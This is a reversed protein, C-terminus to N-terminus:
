VAGAPLLAASYSQPTIALEKLRALVRADCLAAFEEMPKYHDPLNDPGPWRRTAPHMYLESVSGEPVSELYRLVHDATMNGTDNIGFARANLPVGTARMCRRLWWTQSAYFYENFRRQFAKQSVARYSPAYPEFPLRVPPRGYQPLLKALESVVVPHMHFHQHGNVHDLKLGTSRFREFQARIEARAQQRMAPSFFLAVGQKVADISFRGDSGILGSVKEIPLVPRGDVLTLHLGVGLRPMRRAREVADDFAPGGVMLSAASLAGKTHGIEVAENIPLSNGFDDATVILSKM